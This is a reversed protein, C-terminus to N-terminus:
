QVIFESVIKFVKGPDSHHLLDILHSRKSTAILHKMQDYATLKMNYGIYLFHIFSERLQQAITSDAEEEERKKMNNEIMAAVVTNLLGGVNKRQFRNRDNNVEVGFGFLIVYKVYRNPDEQPYLLLEKLCYELSFLTKRNGSTDSDSIRDRFDKLFAEFHRQDSRLSEVSIFTQYEDCYEGYVYVAIVDDDKLVKEIFLQAFLYYITDRFNQSETTIDILLLFCRKHSRYFRKLQRTYKYEESMVIYKNYTLALHKLTKRRLTSKFYDGYEM